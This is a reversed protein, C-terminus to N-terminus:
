PKKPEKTLDDVPATHSIFLQVIDELEGLGKENMEVEYGAKKLRSAWSDEEKGSLDNRAHDGYVVMLPMLWVKKIIHSKLESLLEDFSRSGEVTAVFALSDQHKLVDRAGELILDGRGKEQGHAMFVVAEGPKRRPGLEKLIAAALKKADDRSELLPRGLYVAEFRGPHRNVNLLVSRALEAFEEGAVIHLSQVFVTKCGKKALAALGEGISLVPKGARALKKRIKQSTFSWVIPAEPFADNYAKEIRAYARQAEPVSTGFAVLLIGPKVASFAGACSASCFIVFAITFFFRM